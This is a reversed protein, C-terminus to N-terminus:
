YNQTPNEYNPQVLHVSFYVPLTVCKDFPCHIEVLSFIDKDNLLHYFRSDNLM